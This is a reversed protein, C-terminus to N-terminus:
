DLAGSCWQVLCSEINLRWRAEKSKESDPCQAKSDVLVYQKMVAISAQKPLKIRALRELREQDLDINREETIAKV